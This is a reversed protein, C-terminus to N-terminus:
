RIIEIVDEMQNCRDPDNWNKEWNDEDYQFAFHTGYKEVMKERAESYTGKIKVCKGAKESGDNLFTFIWWEGSPERYYPKPENEEYPIGRGGDYNIHEVISEISDHLMVYLTRETDRNLCDNWLMYLKSGKINNELMRNFGSNAKQFARENQKNIAEMFFQLAGPNGQCVELAYIQMIDM